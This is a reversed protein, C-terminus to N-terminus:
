TGNERRIKVIDRGADRNKDTNRGDRITVVKKKYNTGEMEGRMEGM